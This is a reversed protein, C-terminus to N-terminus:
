YRRYDGRYPAYPQAAAAGAALTLGAVVTAALVMKKM